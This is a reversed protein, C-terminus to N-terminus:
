PAVGQQVGGKGGDDTERFHREGVKFSRVMKRVVRGGKDEEEPLEKGEGSVLGAFPPLLSLFLLKSMTLTPV